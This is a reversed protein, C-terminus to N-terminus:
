SGTGCFSLRDGTVAVVGLLMGNADVVPVRRAESLLALDRGALATAEPAVTPGDQAVDTAPRAVDADNAVDHPTLSGAYRGDEDALFALRRSTSASFWAHVEGVTASAPLATFREHLIDAVTLDAATDIKM